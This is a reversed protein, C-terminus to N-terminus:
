QVVFDSELLTVTSVRCYMNQIMSNTSCAVTPVHIYTPHTCPLSMPSELKTVTSVRRHIRFSRTPIALFRINVYSLYSTCPERLRSAIPHTLYIRPVFGFRRAASGALPCWCDVRFFSPATAVICVTSTRVISRGCVASCVGRFQVLYMAVTLTIWLGKSDPM